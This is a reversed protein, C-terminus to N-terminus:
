PSVELGLGAEAFLPTTRHALGAGEVVLERRGAVFSAGVDARLRVVRALAVTAAASPGAQLLAAGRSRADATGRGDASLVLAGAGACPFIEVRAGLPLAFCARGGMTVLGLDGGVSPRNEVTATQGAYFAGRAEVRVRALDVGLAAAVGASPHPLVGLGFTASPALYPRLRARTETSVDRTGTPAGAAPPPPLPEAREADRERASMAVVLAAAELAEDCAGAEIERQGAPADDRAAGAGAAARASTEVRARFGNPVADVRVRADVAGELGGSLARVRARLGAEDGCPSPGELVVDARAAGSWAVLALALALTLAANPAPM